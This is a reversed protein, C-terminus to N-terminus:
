GSVASPSPASGTERPPREGRQLALVLPTLVALGIAFFVGGGRHHLDGTLYDRSVHIGLWALTAIRLSNKLVAVVVALALFLGQRLPSRLFLRGLVLAALLLANSSRIGSCERAIEITVAPLSFQLGERFVPTGTLRLLWHTGEASAYQLFTEFAHVWGAPLPVTALLLLFEFGAARLFRLGLLGSCLATWVSTLSLIALSLQHPAAAASRSLGYLVAAAALFAVGAGPSPAAVPLRRRRIALLGAAAVPALVVHTYREDTWALELLNRLDPAFIVLSLLVGGGFAIWRRIVAPDSPANSM